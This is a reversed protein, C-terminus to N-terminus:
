GETPTLRRIKRDSVTEVYFRFWPQPKRPM